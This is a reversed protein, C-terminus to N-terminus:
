VSLKTTLEDNLFQLKLLAEDKDIKENRLDVAAKNATQAITVFLQYLQLSTM